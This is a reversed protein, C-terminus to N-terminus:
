GEPLTRRIEEVTSELTPLEDEIVKWVQDLDITDYAHILIDRFGCVRKWPVAPYRATLDPPLRKAAEGIIEFNRAVGDIRLEDSMFADRGVSAYRSIKGICAAIDELYLRVDRSM